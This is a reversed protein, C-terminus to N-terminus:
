EEEKIKNVAEEFDRVNLIIEEIPIEIDVCVDYFEKGDHIKIDRVITKTIVLFGGVKNKIIMGYLNQYTKTEM